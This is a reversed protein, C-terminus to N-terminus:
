ICRERLCKRAAVVLFEAMRTMDTRCEALPGQPEPEDVRELTFGVSILTNLYDALTRHFYPGPTYEMLGPGCQRAFYRDV